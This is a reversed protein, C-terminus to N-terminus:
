DGYLLLGLGGYLRSGYGDARSRGLTLELDLRRSVPWLVTGSLSTIEAGDIASRDRGFDVDLLLNRFGREIGITAFRDDLGYALTVASASLLNLRDARPVIRVSAPYDYDMWAGYIQWSPSLRIRASLGIGDVDLNARRLDTALSTGSFFVDITRREYTVNFRYREDSFFIQGQWSRSELNDSDGWREASLGLGVPEFDHEVGVAALTARIDPETEPARSSGLALSLWTVESIGLHFDGLLSRYSDEDTQASLALMWAVEDGSASAPPQAGAWTAFSTLFVACLRSWSM